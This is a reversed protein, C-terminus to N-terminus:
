GNRRDKKKAKRIVGDDGVEYRTGNSMTFWSGPKHYSVARVDKDRFVEVVEDPVPDFGAFMLEGSKPGAVVKMRTEGDWLHEIMLSKGDPSVAKLLGGELERMRVRLEGRYLVWSAFAMAVLIGIVVWDLITMLRGLTLWDPLTM